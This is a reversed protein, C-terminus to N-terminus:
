LKLAQEKKKKRFEKRHAYCINANGRKGLSMGNRPCGEVKCPRKTKM